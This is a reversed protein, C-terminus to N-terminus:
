AHAGAHRGTANEHMRKTQPLIQSFSPRQKPDAHWCETMLDVFGVPARQRMEATLRPREGGRVARLFDRLNLGDFPEKHSLMEWLCIGFSYVDAKNGYRIAPGDGMLEPAMRHCFSVCLSASHHCTALAHKASARLVVERSTQAHTHWFSLSTGCVM